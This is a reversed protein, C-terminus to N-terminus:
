LLFLKLYCHWVWGQHCRIRDYSDHLQACICSKSTLICSKHGFLIRESFFLGLLLRIRGASSHAHVHVIMWMCRGCACEHNECSQAAECIAAGGVLWAVQDVLLHQQPGGADGVAPADRRRQRRAVSTHEAHRRTRLSFRAILPGGGFLMSTPSWLNVNTNKSTSYVTGTKPGSRQWTAPGHGLPCHTKARRLFSGASTKTCRTRRSAWLASTGARGLRGHVIRHESDFARTSVPVRASLATHVAHM